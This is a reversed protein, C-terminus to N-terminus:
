SLKINSAVKSSSCANGFKTMCDRATALFGNDSVFSNGSRGESCKTVRQASLSIGEEAEDRNEMITRLSEVLVVYLV